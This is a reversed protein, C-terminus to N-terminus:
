SPDLRSFEIEAAGPMFHRMKIAPWYALVIDFVTKIKIESPIAPVRGKARGELHWLTQYSTSEMQDAAESLTMGTLKRAAILRMSLTIQTAM